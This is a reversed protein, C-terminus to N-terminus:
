NKVITVFLNKRCGEFLCDYFIKRVFSEYEPQWWCRYYIAIFSAYLIHLSLLTTVCMKIKGYKRRRENAKRQFLFLFGKMNRMGHSMYVYPQWCFLKRKWPHQERLHLEFHSLLRRRRSTFRQPPSHLPTHCRTLTLKDHVSKHRLANDWEIANLLKLAVLILHPNFIM